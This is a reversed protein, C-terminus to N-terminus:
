MLLGAITKGFERAFCGPLRGVANEVDFEMQYSQILALVEDMPHPGVFSSGNKQNSFDVLSPGHLTTTNKQDAHKPLSNLCVFSSGNKKTANMLM